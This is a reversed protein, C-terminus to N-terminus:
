GPLVAALTEALPTTPRGILTRLDGSTYSLAGAAIDRDIGSVTDAAHEPLGADLLAARYEEPSIDRYSVERGSLRSIESAFEPFSWAVDGSLEYGPAPTGDAALVAVAAAAYDARSASAVRGDAASGIIVGTEAGSRARQEYMETYWSNRLFTHPIGSGAIIEETTKHDAALGLPTSSARLVSTYVLHGVGVSTAAEVAAKHQAVRHSVIAGSILLLRDAGDFAAPLTDPADFDSRRVQVGLAAFDGLAETRRTAAVIQEAPVKELLGAVVLRGLHGGAGSVVIM